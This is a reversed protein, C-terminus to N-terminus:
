AGGLGKVRQEDLEDLSQIMLGVAENTSSLLLLLKAGLHAPVGNRTLLVVNDAAAALDEAEAHIAAVLAQGTPATSNTSVTQTNNV